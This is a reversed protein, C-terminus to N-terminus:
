LGQKEFHYIGPEKLEEMGPIEPDIEIVSPDLVILYDYRKAAEALKEGDLGDTVDVAPAYLFYRLVYRVEGDSVEGNEDSAAALYRSEDEQGDAYWRDGTLAEVRGPLSEEYARRISLLGNWESYLFNVAVVVTVLVGTQYRHKAEPSAYARYAGREDIGVAFSHEMDATAGMILIGAFLVMISCTYRDFGALRVAEEEPMAYLYLLLLGGYYGGTVGAALLYLRGLNWRKQLVLRAYLVAAATLLSCLLFAQVSREGPDTSRSLFLRIIERSYASAGTGAEAAGVHFKGEYGALEAALYARWLVFPLATGAAAPVLLGMRSMRKRGRSGAFLCWMYYLFGIGAFVAGTNKVLVTFGLILVTCLTMKGPTERQRCSAAFSALTLLPLLFDVLLNNIRITLNLYSLMACGMGLFSYLLFRRREEVIGFLAYFCAFILSNQALLMVGQGRGSFRCVYYLFVACGPPYDKFTIMESAADPFHDASLLDKVAVAWHSFNDYHILKLNLSLLAFLLIGTLFCIQFLDPRHMRIRKRWMHFCCFVAAGTGTVCLVDATQALLGALGGAYLILSIGTMATLPVFWFSVGAARVLLMWGGLSALLLIM